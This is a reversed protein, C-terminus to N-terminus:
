KKEEKKEDAKAETERVKKAEDVKKKLAQLRAIEADLDQTAQAEAEPNGLAIEADSPISSVNELTFLKREGNVIIMAMGGGKIIDLAEERQTRKKESMTRRFFPTLTLEGWINHTLQQRM